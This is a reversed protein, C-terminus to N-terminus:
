WGRDGRDRNLIVHGNFFTKTDLRPTILDRLNSLLVLIIPFGPGLLGIPPSPDSSHFTGVDLPIGGEAKIQPQGMWGRRSSVRSGTHIMRESTRALAKAYRELQRPSMGAKRLSVLWQDVLRGMPESDPNPLMTMISKM